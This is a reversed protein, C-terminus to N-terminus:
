FAHKKIKYNKTDLVYGHLYKEYGFIKLAGEDDDLPLLIGGDLSLVMSILALSGAATIGM